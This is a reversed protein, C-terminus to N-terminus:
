PQGIEVQRIEKRWKRFSHRAVRVDIQDVRIEIKSRSGRQCVLSRWLRNEIVALVDSFQGASETGDVDSPQSAPVHPAREDRLRVAGFRTLERRTRFM